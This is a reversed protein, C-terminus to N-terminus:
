HNITPKPRKTTQIAPIGSCSLSQCEQTYGSEFGLGGPGLGVILWKNLFHLVFFFSMMRLGVRLYDREFVRTSIIQYVALSLSDKLKVAKQWLFHVVM